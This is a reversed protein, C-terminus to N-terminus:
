PEERENDGAVQSQNWLAQLASHVKGNDRKRGTKGTEASRAPTFRQHKRDLTLPIGRSEGHRSKLHKLIVCSSSAREGDDSAWSANPMIPSM